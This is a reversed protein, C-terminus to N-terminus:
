PIVQLRLTLSHPQHHAMRTSLWTEVVHVVDERDELTDPATKKIKSLVYGKKRQSVDGSKQLTFGLVTRSSEPM